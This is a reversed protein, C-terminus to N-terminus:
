YAKRRVLFFILVGAVVTAAIVAGLVPWDIAPPVEAPAEPVVVEEEEPPAVEEEPVAEKVTFSGTLGDVEISYTGAADKVISFSVLESDGAAITVEKSAEVRGNMKLVVEYSGSRGGTNAVTICINVPEGIGVETPMVLLISATFAAPAAPPPARAIIAFTTFHSISVTITKSVTDVEGELYVWAEAIEDYYAVVLVDKGEPIDDPDYSFELTIAPDFTAGDPGLDYALVIDADEPPPPPDEEALITIEDLCDLEETLCVTDEPITLTCLEDDSFATASETFRCGTGVFGRIDTTGAPLRRPGIGGGGAPPPPTPAEITVSLNMETPGGGAEFAATAGEVKVDDVYFTITAGPPIDGQVLLKLSTIGYSDGATTVPNQTSVITGNDVTASVQTGDPAAADNIEVSGYFAHPLAPVAYAPTACFVLLFALLIFITIKRM